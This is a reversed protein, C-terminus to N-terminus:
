VLTTSVEGRCRINWAAALDNRRPPFILEGRRSLNKFFVSERYLFILSEGRRFVFGAAALVRRCRKFLRQLFRAAAVYIGHRPSTM